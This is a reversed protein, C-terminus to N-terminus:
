HTTKQLLLLLLLAAARNPDFHLAVKNAQVLPVFVHVSEKENMIRRHGNLNFIFSGFHM